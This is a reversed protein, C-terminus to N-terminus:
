WKYPKEPLFLLGFRDLAPSVQKGLIFSRPALGFGNRSRVPHGSFWVLDGSIYLAGYKQGPWELVFGTTEGVILHSGLSGHWAPVATVKIEFSM